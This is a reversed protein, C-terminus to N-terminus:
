SEEQDAHAHFSRQTQSLGLSEGAVYQGRIGDLVNNRWAPTAVDRLVQDLSSMPIDHLIISVTDNQRDLVCEVAVRTESM